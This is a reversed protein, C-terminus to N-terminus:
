RKLRQALKVGYYGMLTDLITDEMQHDFDWEDHGLSRPGEDPFPNVGEHKNMGYEALEWLVALLFYRCSENGDDSLAMGVVFGGCFHGLNDWWWHQDYGDHYLNTVAVISGAAATLAKSM